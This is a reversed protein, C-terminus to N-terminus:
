PSRVSDLQIRISPWVYANPSGFCDARRVRVLCTIIFVWSFSAISLRVRWCAGIWQCERERHLFHRIHAMLDIMRVPKKLSTMAGATFAATKMYSFISMAVIPIKELHSKEKLLSV